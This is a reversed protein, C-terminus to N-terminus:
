ELIRIVPKRLPPSQGIVVTMLLFFLMGRIINMIIIFSNEIRMIDKLFDYRRIDQAGHNKLLYREGHAIIDCAATVYKLEIPYLEDEEKLLIDIHMSPDIHVPCYELRVDSKPM